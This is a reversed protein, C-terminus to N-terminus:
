YEYHSDVDEPHKLDWLPRRSSISPPVAFNYDPPPSTTAWELTWADWPDPGAVRGRYFAWVMNVVFIVTAIAQIFGGASVLMNWSDWGRGAEYTYIRRPMGLIGPVHMLDFTLHFGIVFLWFHWKGLRESLMRGTMKPYWYYFAAFLAFLIAGVLVYHFHAVVFYTNNLQWDMPASSLVIGTLGAGLFQFLFGTAFLMPTKFQIKGGWMTALWNFIKIGTPVSIVMTAATFFINGGAGLGDIFMHHAWVSLSIFGISVTAAVMAPYGFIAKRSFVPIIENMFGFAPMVLIYVEPHGFIWFFHFWLIASGGAQTDFFHAGLYRDITIMIQAATLPSVAVFVLFSTVLYIWPLLPLRTMTMGKCRMSLITAVINIATGTTGIGSLLISFTWYDTSHGPSFVKETLPAYAWWSVDPASGAGYLGSGGVYSYYLLIGGFASIWFSFANLRPFAMDRAGIMLPILYNGFGFLIPMGVFFVMTTGHMTFLRNFVQPSLFHNNPVALQIRILMAMFGAIVLFVLAYVIYMIGIKKHDVTTLWDHAVQLLLKKPKTQSTLDVATTTAM